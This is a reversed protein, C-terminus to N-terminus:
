ATGAGRLRFSLVILLVGFVVAYIGILWVITVLGAGPFFFAVIGFLISVIGGLVLLWEGEIARRLEVAAVIEMIGTILAWAAVLYLLILLSLDPWFFIALGALISALGELLGVWWRESQERESLAAAATFIGDVVLYAGLLYILVQVTLEPWILALIGFIVAAVGRILFLWWYRSLVDIM